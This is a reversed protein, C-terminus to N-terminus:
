RKFIGESMVLGNHYVLPDTQAEEGHKNFDSSMPALKEVEQAEEGHKNFDSSMPALKEVFLCVSLGIFTSLIDVVYSPISRAWLKSERPSLCSDFM